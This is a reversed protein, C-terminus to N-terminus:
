NQFYFLCFYLWQVFVCQGEAPANSKGKINWHKLKNQCSHAEICLLDMASQLRSNPLGLSSFPAPLLLPPPPPSFVFTFPPPLPSPPSLLPCCLCPSHHLPPSLSLSRSRHFPNSHSYTIDNCRKSTKVNMPCLSSVIFPNM